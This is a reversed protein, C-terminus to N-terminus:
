KLHNFIEKLHNIVKTNKPFADQKNHDIGIFNLGAKQSAIQDKTSDGVYTVELPLINLKKLKSLLAEFVKPDPKHHKTDDATQLHFLKNTHFGLKNLDSVVLQRNSATVIGTPLQRILQNITKAAQPYEEMPFEQTVKLYHKAINDFTDINKFVGLIMSQYPQGWFQQLDQDTIKLDYHRKATEKLAAWKSKKTQVLTDDFDFLIAKIM